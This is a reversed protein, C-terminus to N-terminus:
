SCKPLNVGLSFRWSKSVQWFSSFSGGFWGLVPPKWSVGASPGFPALPVLVLKPGSQFIFEELFDNYDRCRCFCLFHDGLCKWAFEVIGYLTRAISRNPCGFLHSWTYVGIFLACFRMLTVRLGWFPKVDLVMIFGWYFRVDRACKACTNSGCAHKLIFFSKSDLGHAFYIVKPVCNQSAHTKYDNKFASCFLLSFSLM